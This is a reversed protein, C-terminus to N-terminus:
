AEEFIQEWHTKALAKFALFRKLILKRYETDQAGLSAYKMHAPITPCYPVKTQTAPFMGSVVANCLATTVPVLYFTPRTQVMTICPITMADLRKLGYERRRMNNFQFAAIAGAIAQSAPGIGDPTKDVILVLLIFIPHLNFLCVDTLPTSITNCCITFPIAYHQVTVISRGDDFGLLRLTEAAFSPAFAVRSPTSALYLYKLYRASIESSPRDSESSDLIAPDIVDLPPDPTPFFQDPPIPVITINYATLEYRTWDSGPKASRTLNAM